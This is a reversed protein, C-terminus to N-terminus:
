SRCIWIKLEEIKRVLTILTFWLHCLLFLHYFYWIFEKVEACSVNYWNEFTHSIKHPNSNSYFPTKFQPLVADTMM